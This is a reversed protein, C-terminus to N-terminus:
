KKGKVIDCKVIRWGDRYWTKWASCHTLSDLCRRRSDRAHPWLIEGRPTVPVWGSTTSM